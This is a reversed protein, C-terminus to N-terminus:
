FSAVALLTPAKQGHKGRAGEAEESGQHKGSHGPMTCRAGEEQSSYTIFEEKWPM